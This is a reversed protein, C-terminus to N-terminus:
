MLPKNSIIQFVSSLQADNMFSQLYGLLDRKRNESFTKSLYSIQAQSKMQRFVKIARDETDPLIKISKANWIEEAAIAMNVSYSKGNSTFNLLGEIEKITMASKRRDKKWKNFIALWYNPNLSLAPNKTDIKNPNGSAGSELSGADIEARRDAATKILGLKTGIKYVGFGILAIFGYFKFDKRQEDTM